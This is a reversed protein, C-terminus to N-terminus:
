TFLNLIHISGTHQRAPRATQGRRQSPPAEGVPVAGPVPRPPLVDTGSLLGPVEGRLLPLHAAASSGDTARIGTRGFANTSERCFGTAERLNLDTVGM